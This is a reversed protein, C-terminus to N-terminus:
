ASMDHQIGRWRILLSSRYLQNPTLFVTALIAGFQKCEKGFTKLEEAVTSEEIKASKTGLADPEQQTDSVSIM